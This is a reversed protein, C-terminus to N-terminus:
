DAFGALLLSERHHDLDAAHRYHLTPLCDVQLSLGPRQQLAADVHVRASAADGLRAFCAALLTHQLMNPAAIRQLSDVAAAYRRAVVHARGLHSWFRDPHYPNL